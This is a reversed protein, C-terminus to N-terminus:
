LEQPTHFCVLFASPACYADLAIQHQLLTSLTLMKSEPGLVKVENANFAFSFVVALQCVNRDYDDYSLYVHVNLQTEDRVEKFLAYGLKRM